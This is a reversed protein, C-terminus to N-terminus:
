LVDFFWYFRIFLLTYAITDSPFTECLPYLYVKLKGEPLEVYSNLIAM